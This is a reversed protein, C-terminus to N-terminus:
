YHLSFFFLVMLLDQKSIQPVQDQASSASSWSESESESQNNDDETTDDQINSRFFSKQFFHFVEM